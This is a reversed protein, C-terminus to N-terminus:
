HGVARSSNLKFNCHHFIVQEPTLRHLPAKTDFELKAANVAGYHDIPDSLM